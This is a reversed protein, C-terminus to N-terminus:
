ATNVVKGSLGAVFKYQNWADMMSDNDDFMDPDIITELWHYQQALNHSKPMSGFNRPLHLKGYSYLDDVISYIDDHEFKSWPGGSYSYGAWIGKWQKSDTFDFRTGAVVVLVDYIDVKKTAIDAVCKSLSLGIKM